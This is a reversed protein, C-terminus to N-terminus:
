ALAVALKAKRRHVAFGLGVFGVIMMIWTSTEPVAATFQVESLMIWPELGGAALNQGNKLAQQQFGSNPDCFNTCTWTTWPGSNMGAIHQSYYDIGDQQLPGRELTLGFVSTSAISGFGSLSIMDTFANLATTAVNAAVSKGNVTLDVTKPAAVLGNLDGIAPNYAAVYLEISGVNKGAALHFIINPDQYKWGVYQTPQGNLYTSNSITATNSTVLSYVQTAIVGDTLIGTGGTLPADKPASNSPVQLNSGNQSANATPSSQGTQTYSWDFYNPGGTFQTAGNGNNMDYSTVTVLSARAGTSCLAVAFLGVLTSKPLRMEFFELGAKVARVNM